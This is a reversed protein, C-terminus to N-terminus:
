TKSRRQMLARVAIISSASLVLLAVPVGYNILETSRHTLGRTAEAYAFAGYLNVIGILALGVHLLSASSKGFADLLSRRIIVTASAFILYATGHLGHTVVIAHHDVAVNSTLANGILLGSAWVAFGAAVLILAIPGRCHHPIKRAGRFMFM